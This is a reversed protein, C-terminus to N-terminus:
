CTMLRVSCSPEMVPITIPVAMTIPAAASGETKVLSGCTMAMACRSARQVERGFAAQLRSPPHSSSCASLQQEFSPPQPSM